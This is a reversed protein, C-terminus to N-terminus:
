RIAIASAPSGVGGRMKLPSSVLMFEYRGDRECEKSLADLDWLEGIPIGLLPLLSYHLYVEECRTPHTFLTELEGPARGFGLPYVELSPNDAAVASVHLNWLYAAMDRGPQLGPCPPGGGPIETLAVRSETSSNRYWTLWGTRIVLVDGAEVVTGQHELTASLDDVTILRAASGDIPDSVSEKWRAVDALIARGVIGQDAWHDMGHSEDAVGNYFGHVPHRVHRFGDWQSAIQPDWDSIYEGHGAAHDRIEHRYSRRNFLPPSAFDQRLDLSLVQHEVVSAMGAAVRSPTLLNLCGLMDQSGWVGWSSGPPAGAVVPLEDYRPLGGPGASGTM